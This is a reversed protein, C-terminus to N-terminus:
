IDGYDVRVIRKKFYGLNKPTCDETYWGLDPNKLGNELFINVKILYDYKSINSDMMTCKPMINLLGFPVSLYIPCLNLNPYERFRVYEIKNNEMGKMFNSIKPFKFALKGILIVFRTSGSINYIM